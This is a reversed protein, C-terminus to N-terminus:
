FILFNSFLILFGRELKSDSCVYNHDKALHDKDGAREAPTTRVAIPNERPDRRDPAAAGWIGGSDGPQLSEKM